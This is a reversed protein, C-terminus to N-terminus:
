RSSRSTDGRCERELSRHSNDFMPMLPYVSQKGILRYLCDDSCRTRQLLTLRCLRIGDGGSLLAFRRFGVTYDPDIRLAIVGLGDVRIADWDPTQATTCQNQLRYQGASVM